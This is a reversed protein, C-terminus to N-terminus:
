GKTVGRERSATLVKKGDGALNQNLPFIFVAVKAGESPSPSQNGLDVPASKEGPGGSKLLEETV